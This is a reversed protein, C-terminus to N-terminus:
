SARRADYTDGGKTSRKRARFVAKTHEVKWGMLRRSGICQSCLIFSGTTYGKSMRAPYKVNVHFVEPYNHNCKSDCCIGTYYFVEYGEKSYDKKSM